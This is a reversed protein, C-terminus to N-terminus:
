AINKMEPSSLRCGATLEACGIVYPRGGGATWRPWAGGGHGSVQVVIHVVCCGALQREGQRGPAATGV